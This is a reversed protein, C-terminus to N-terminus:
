RCQKNLVSAYARQITFFIFRGFHMPCFVILLNRIPNFYKDMGVLDLRVVNSILKNSPSQFVKQFNSYGLRHCSDIFLAFVQPKQAAALRNNISIKPKVYKINYMYVNYLHMFCFIWRRMEKRTYYILIFEFDQLINCNSPFCIFYIGKFRLGLGVHPLITSFIQCHSKKVSILRRFSKFDM